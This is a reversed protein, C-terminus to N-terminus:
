SARRKVCNNALQDITRILAPVSAAGKLLQSGHTPLAAVAVAAAAPPAASLHHATLWLASLLRHYISNGEQKVASSKEYRCM